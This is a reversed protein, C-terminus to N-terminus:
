SALETMLASWRKVFIERRGSASPQEGDTVHVRLYNRLEDFANCFRTGQEVETILEAGM